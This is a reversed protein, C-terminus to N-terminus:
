TLMAVWISCGSTLWRGNPSTSPAMRGSDSVLQSALSIQFSFSSSATRLARSFLLTIREMPPATLLGCDKTDALPATLPGGANMVCCASPTGM